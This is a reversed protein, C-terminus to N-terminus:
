CGNCPVFGVKSAVVLMCSKVQALTGVCIATEFGYLTGAPISAWHRWVVSWKSTGQAPFNFRAYHAYAAPASVSNFSAQNGFLDLLLSNPSLSLSLSLSLSFTGLFAGMAYNQDPTAIIVPEPTEGPGADIPLLASTTLNLTWFQNFNEPM